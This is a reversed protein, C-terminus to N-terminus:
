LCPGSSGTFSAREALKETIKFKDLARKVVINSDIQALINRQNRGNWWTIAWRLVGFSLFISVLFPLISVSEPDNQNSRDLLIQVLVLTAAVILGTYAYRRFLYGIDVSPERIAWRNTVFQNASIVLTAGAAFFLFKRPWVLTIGFVLAPTFLVLLWLFRNAWPQYRGIPNGINGFLCTCYFAGACTLLAIPLFTRDIHFWSAVYPPWFFLRFCTLLVCSLAVYSEISLLRLYSRSDLFNTTYFLRKRDTKICRKLFGQRKEIQDQEQLSLTRQIHSNAVEGLHEHAISYEERTLPVVAGCKELRGLQQEITDVGQQEGCIKKIAQPEYKEAIGGGRSMTFLIRLSTRQDGTSEIVRNFLSAIIQDIQIPKGEFLVDLQGMTTLSESKLAYIILKIYIPLTAKEKNSQWSANAVTPLLDPDRPTKGVIHQFVGKYIRREDESDHQTPTLVFLRIQRYIRLASFLCKQRADYIADGLVDSRSSFITLRCQETLSDILARVYDVNLENLLIQEFQDVILVTDKLRARQEPKRTSEALWKGLDPPEVISETSQDSFFESLEKKIGELGGRLDIRLVESPTGKMRKAFHHFYHLLFSSKGVGSLGIVSIIPLLRNEEKDRIAQEVVQHFEELQKAYGYFHEGDPKFNVEIKNERRRRPLFAIVVVVWAVLLVLAFVRHPWPKDLVDTIFGVLTFLGLSPFIYTVLIRTMGPSERLAEKIERVM